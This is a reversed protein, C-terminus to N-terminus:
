AVAGVVLVEVFGVVFKVHATDPECVDQVDVIRFDFSPLNTTNDLFM